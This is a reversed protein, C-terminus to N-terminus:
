NEHRQVCAWFEEDDADCELATGNWHYLEQAIAAVDYDEAFEGLAPIIHYNIADTITTYTM